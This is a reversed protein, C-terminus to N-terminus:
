LIGGKSFSWVFGGATSRIKSRNAVEGIHSSNIGTARGAEHISKYVKVLEGKKTFQYVKKSTTKGGNERAIDKRKQTSYDIKSSRTKAGEGYSMNYKATCWELNDVNNNSPNEDIHNVQPYNNPNPIFAMAVLRHVNAFKAYRTGDKKSGKELSVVHYGKDSVWHKLEGKRGKVLGTNSVWYRGEWGPVDRWIVPVGM